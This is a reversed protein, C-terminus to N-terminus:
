PNIPKFSIIQNPFIKYTHAFYEKFLFTESNCCFETQRLDQPNFIVLYNINQHCIINFKITIDNFTKEQIYREDWYSVIDWIRFTFLNGITFAAYGGIDHFFNIPFEELIKFQNPVRTIDRLNIIQLNYNEDRDILCLQLKNEDRIKFYIANKRCLCLPIDDTGEIYFIDSRHILLQEEKALSKFFEEYDKMECNNLNSPLFRRFFNGNGNNLYIPFIRINYSELMYTLYNFYSEWNLFNGKSDIDNMYKFYIKQTLKKWEEENFPKNQIISWHCQFLDKYNSLLKPSIGCTSILIDSIYSFVINVLCLPINLNNKILEYM